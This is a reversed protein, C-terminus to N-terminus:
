LTHASTVLGKRLQSKGKEFSLLFRTVKFWNLEVTNYSVVETVSQVNINVDPSTV